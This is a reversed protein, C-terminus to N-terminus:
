RKDTTPWHTHRRGASNRRATERTVHRRPDCRGFISKKNKQHVFRPLFILFSFLCMWLTMSEKPVFGVTTLKSVDFCGHLRPILLKQKGSSTGRDSCRFFEGRQRGGGTRGHEPSTVAVVQAVVSGRRRRGRWHCFDVL